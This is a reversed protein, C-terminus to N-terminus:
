RRAVEEQLAGVVAMSQSSTPSSKYAAGLVVSVRHVGGDHVLPIARPDTPSGDLEVLVVGNCRQESNEVEIAYLTM